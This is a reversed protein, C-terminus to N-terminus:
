NDITASEKRDFIMNRKWKFNGIKRVQQVSKRETKQENCRKNERFKVWEARIRAGATM